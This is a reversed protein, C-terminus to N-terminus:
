LLHGPFVRKRHSGRPLSRHSLMVHSGAVTHGRYPNMLYQLWGFLCPFHRYPPLEVNSGSIQDHRQKAESFSQPLNEDCKGNHWKNLTAKRACRGDEMLPRWFFYKAMAQKRASNAEGQMITAGKTVNAFRRTYHVRCDAALSAPSAWLSWEPWSPSTHPYWEEYHNILDSRWHWWMIPPFRRLGPPRM